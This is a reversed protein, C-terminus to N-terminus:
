GEWYAFDKHHIRAAEKYAEHALEPTPFTGLYINKGDVTIQAKWGGFYKHGHTYAPSAGKLGTSSNIPRRRNRRNEALDAIRLNVKGDVIQRNDLTDHLSHDAQREDGFKLGLIERHM